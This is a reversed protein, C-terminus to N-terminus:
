IEVRPHAVHSLSIAVHSLNQFTLQAQQSICRKQCFSKHVCCTDATNIKETTHIWHGIGLVTSTVATNIQTLLAHLSEDGKTSAVHPASQVNKLYSDSNGYLWGFQLKNVCKARSLCTIKKQEWYLSSLKHKSPSHTCDICRPQTGEASSERKQSM